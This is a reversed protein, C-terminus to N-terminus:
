EGMIPMYIGIAFFSIILVAIVYFWKLSENEKVCIQYYDLLNKLDNFGSFIWESFKINKHKKLKPVIIGVYIWMIFIFICIELSFLFNSM